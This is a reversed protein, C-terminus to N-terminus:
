VVTAKLLVASVTSPASGNAIQATLVYVRGGATTVVDFGEVDQASLGAAAIGATLAGTDAVVAGALGTERLRLQLSTGNTGITLAAWGTLVIGSIVQENETISIQAIVTEAAAAPSAVVTKSAVIRHSLDVSAVDLQIPDAPSM